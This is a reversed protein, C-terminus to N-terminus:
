FHKSKNIIHFVYISVVDRFSGLVIAQSTHVYAPAPMRNTIDINESATM